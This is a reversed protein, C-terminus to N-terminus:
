KEALLHMRKLEEVQKIKSALEAKLEKTKDFDRCRQELLTIYSTKKEELKQTLLAIHENMKANTAIAQSLTQYLNGPAEVPTSCHDGHDYVETHSRKGPVSVDM